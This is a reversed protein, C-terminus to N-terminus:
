QSSMEQAYQKFKTVEEKVTQDVMENFNPIHEALFTQMKEPDESKTLADFEARKEEPLQELANIAVQKLALEGLKGIVQEQAEPPMSTIGLEEAINKRLEDQPKM